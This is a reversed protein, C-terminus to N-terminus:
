RTAPDSVKDNASEAVRKQLQDIYEWVAMCDTDDRGNIPLGCKERLMQIAYECGIKSLRVEHLEQEVDEIRRSVVRELSGGNATRSVRENVLLVDCYPCITSITLRTWQRECKPCYGIDKM